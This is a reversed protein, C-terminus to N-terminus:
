RARCYLREGALAPDEIRRRPEAHDALAQASAQDGTGAALRVADALLDEIEEIEENGDFM